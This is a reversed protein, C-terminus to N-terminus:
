IEKNAAELLVWVLCCRKLICIRNIMLMQTVYLGIDCTWDKARSCKKIGKEFGDITKKRKEVFSICQQQQPLIMFSKFLEHMM